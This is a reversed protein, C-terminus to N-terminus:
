NVVARRYSCYHEHCNMLSSLSCSSSHCPCVTVSNHRAASERRRQLRSGTCAFFQSMTAAAADSCHGRRPGAAELRALSFIGLRWWRAFVVGCCHDIFNGNVHRVESVRLEIRGYESHDLRFPMRRGGLEFALACRAPRQNSQISICRRRHGAPHSDLWRGSADFFGFAMVGAFNAVITYLM